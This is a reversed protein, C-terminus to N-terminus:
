SRRRHTNAAPCTAFHTTYRYATIAQGPKPNVVVKPVALGLKVGMSVEVFEVVAVNGRPDAAPNLPMRRGTVAHIAWRIPNHCSHCEADAKM